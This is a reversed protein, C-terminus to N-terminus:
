RSSWKTVKVNVTKTEIAKKEWPRGLVFKIKHEGTKDARFRFIQGTSDGPKVDGAPKENETGLFQIADPLSEVKWLYGATAISKLSITFEENVAVTLTDM